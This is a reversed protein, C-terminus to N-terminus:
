KRQLEHAGGELTVGVTLARQVAVKQGLQTEEDTRFLLQHAVLAYLDEAFGDGM